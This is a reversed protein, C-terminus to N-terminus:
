KWNSCEAHTSSAGKGFELKKGLTNLSNQYKGPVFLSHDTNRKTLKRRPTPSTQLLLQCKSPCTVNLLNKHYALIQREICINAIM